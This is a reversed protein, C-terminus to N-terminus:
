VEECKVIKVNIRRFTLYHEEFLNKSNRTGKVLGACLFYFCSAFAEVTIDREKQAIGQTLRLCFCNFSHCYYDPLLPHEVVNQVPPKGVRGEGLSM